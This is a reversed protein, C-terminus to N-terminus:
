RTKRYGVLVGLLMFTSLLGDGMVGVGRGKRNGSAPSVM